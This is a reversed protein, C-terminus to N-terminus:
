NDMPLTENRYRCSAMRILIYVCIIAVQYNYDLYGDDNLEIRRELWGGKRSILGDQFVTQLKEEINQEDNLLNWRGQIIAAMEYSVKDSAGAKVKARRRNLQENGTIISIINALINYTLLPKNHKRALTKERSSWQENNVFNVARQSYEIADAYADVAYNYITRIKDGRM